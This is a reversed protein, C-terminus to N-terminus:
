ALLISNGMTSKIYIKRIQQQGRPLKGALTTIAAAINEALEEDTIDLTGVRANICPNDRVRLRVSKAYTNKLESISVTPAVPKPMKGRPGLIKGLSRGVKPMYQRDALFFDHEDAIKKLEKTNKVLLDFKDSGIVTVGENEARVALDGDAFLGLKVPRKIEHPLTAELNFRQAPDKLNVDKLSVLVEVSQLFNRKKGERLKAVNELIDSPQYSM